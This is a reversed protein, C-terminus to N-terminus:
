RSGHQAPRNAEENSAKIDTQTQTEREQQQNQQQQSAQEPLRETGQVPNAASTVLDVATAIGAAVQRWGM